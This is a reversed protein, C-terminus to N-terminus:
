NQEGEGENTASVAANADFQSVCEFVDVQALQMASSAGERAWNVRQIIVFRGSIAGDLFPVVATAFIM